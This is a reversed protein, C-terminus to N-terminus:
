NANQENLKAIESEISSIQKEIENRKNEAHAANREYEKRAAKNKAIAINYSRELAYLSRRLYNIENTYKLRNGLIARSHRHNAFFTNATERDWIINHTRCHYRVDSIHDDRYRNPFKWSNHNHLHRKCYDSGYMDYHECFYIGGSVTAKCTRTMKREFKVDTGNICMDFCVFNKNGILSSVKKLLAEKEQIEKKINNIRNEIDETNILNVKGAATVRKLELQLKKLTQQKEAILKAREASQTEDTTNINDTPTQVATQNKQLEQVKMSELQLKQQLLQLSKNLEDYKEREKDLQAILAKHRKTTYEHYGFFGCVGAIILLVLITRM